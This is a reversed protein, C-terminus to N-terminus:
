HPAYQGGVSRVSLTTFTALPERGGAETQSVRRLLAPGVPQAVGGGRIFAPRPATWNPWTPGARESAEKSLRPRESQADARRFTPRRWGMRYGAPWTTRVGRGRNPSLTACHACILCFRFHAVEVCAGAATTDRKRARRCPVEIGNAAHQGRSRKPSLPHCRANKQSPSVTASKPEVTFKSRASVRGLQIIM